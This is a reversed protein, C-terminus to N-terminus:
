AGPGIREKLLSERKRRSPTLALEQALEARLRERERPDHTKARALVDAAREPEAGSDVWADLADLDARMAPDPLPRVIQKHRRWVVPAVEPAPQALARWILAAVVLAGVPYEAIAVHPSRAILM